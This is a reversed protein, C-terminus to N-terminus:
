FYRMRKRGGTTVLVPITQKQFLFMGKDFHWQDKKSVSATAIGKVEVVGDVGDCM